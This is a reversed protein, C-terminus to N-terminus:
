PIEPNVYGILIEMKLLQQALVFWCGFHECNVVFHKKNLEHVTSHKEGLIYEM